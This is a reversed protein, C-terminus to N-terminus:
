QIQGQLGHEVGIQCTLFSGGVVCSLLNELGAHLFRTPFRSLGLSEAHKWLLKSFCVPDKLNGVLNRITNRVLKRPHLKLFGRVRCLTWGSPSLRESSPHLWFQPRTSYIHSHYRIVSPLLQLRHYFYV